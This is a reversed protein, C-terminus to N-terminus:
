ESGDRILRSGGDLSPLAGEPRSQLMLVAEIRNKVKLKALIRRVHMKATNESIDLDRAIQKNARGQRLSALVQLERMTLGFAAELGPPAAEPAAEGPQSPAHPAAQGPAAEVAAQPFYTGGAIVLQVAALAIPLPTCNSILGRCGRRQAERIMAADEGDCLLLMPAGGHAVEDCAGPSGNARLILLGIERDELRELEALGPLAVVDFEEFRAMLADRLLASTLLQHDVIVIAALGDREPTEGDVQRLSM